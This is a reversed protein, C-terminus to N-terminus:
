IRADQVTMRRPLQIHPITLPGLATSPTLSALCTLFSLIAESKLGLDLTKPILTRIQLSLILMEHVSCVAESCTPVPITRNSSSTFNEQAPSAPGPQYIITAVITIYYKNFKQEGYLLYIAHM